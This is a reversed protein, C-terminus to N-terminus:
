WSGRESFAKQKDANWSTARQAKGDLIVTEFGKGYTKLLWRSLVANHLEQPDIKRLLYSVTNKMLSVTEAFALGCVREQSSLKKIWDAIQRYQTYGSIV